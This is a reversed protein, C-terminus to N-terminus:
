YTFNVIQNILDEGFSDYYSPYISRMKEIWPAKDVEIIQASSKEQIEKLSTEAVEESATFSYDLMADAVAQILQQDTESLSDWVEQSMSILGAAFTHETLYIYKQVEYFKGSNIVILPNDEADVTGQSLATYLETFAMPTPLAGVAEFMDIYVQNELVRIKIGQMDDPSHIEANATVNRWGCNLWGLAKIGTGEFEKLINQGIESSLVAKAHDANTFLYPLDFLGCAPVFNYAVQSGGGVLDLMGISEQELLERESGLASNHHEDFTIRGDTIETLVENMKTISLQIPNGWVVGTAATLTVKEGATYDISPDLDLVVDATTTITSESPVQSSAGPSSHSASSSGPTDGSGSSSQQGSCGVLCGLLLCMTVTIALIRRKRM